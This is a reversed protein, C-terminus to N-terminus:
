RIICHALPNTANSQLHSLLFHISEPCLQLTHLLVDLVLFKLYFIGDFVVLRFFDRAAVFLPLLQKNFPSPGAAYASRGASGGPWGM